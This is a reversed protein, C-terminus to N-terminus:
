YLAFSLNVTLCEQMTPVSPISAQIECMEAYFDLPHEANFPLEATSCLYFLVGLSWSDTAVFTVKLVWVIGNGAM